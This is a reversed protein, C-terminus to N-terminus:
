RRNAHKFEEPPEFTAVLPEQKTLPKDMSELMNIALHFGEIRAQLAARDETRTGAIAMAYNAPTENKLVQIMARITQQKLAMGAKTTLLGSKRWDVLRLQLPDLQIFEITSEPVSRIQKEYWKKFSDLINAM